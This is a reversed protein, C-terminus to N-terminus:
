ATNVKKLKGFSINSVEGKFNMVTLNYKQISLVFYYLNQSEEISSVLEYQSFGSELQANKEMKSSLVIKNVHIVFKQNAESDYVTAEEEDIKIIRGSKGKLKPDNEIVVHDGIEFHRIAYNDPMELEDDLEKVDAKLTIIGNSHDIVTATVGKLNGYILKIKEGKYFVHKNQDKKDETKKKKSDIALVQTMEDLPVMKIFKPNVNSMGAIAASVDAEKFAEVYFYGKLSDIAFASQIKLDYQKNNFFYKKLLTFANDKEKGMKCKVMWLKPDSSTPQRSVTIDEHEEEMIDEEDDDYEGKVDKAYKKEIEDVINVKRRQMQLEPERMYKAQQEKNIEGDREEDDSDGEEVEREIYNNIYSKKPKKKQKQKKNSEMYDDDSNHDRKVYDDDDLDYVEDPSQVKVKRKRKNMEKKVRDTDDDDNKFHGPVVVNMQQKILNPEYEYDQDESM